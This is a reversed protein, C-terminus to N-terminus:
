AAAPLFVGACPSRRPAFTRARIPPFQRLTLKVPVDWSVGHHCDCRLCFPRGRFGGQRGCFVGARTNPEVAPCVARKPSPPSLYARQSMVAYSVNATKSLWPRMAKAFVEQEREEDVGASAYPDMPAM